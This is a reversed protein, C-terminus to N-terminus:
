PRDRAGRTAISERSRHARAPVRSHRSRQPAPSNPPQFTFASPLVLVPVLVIGALADSHRTVSRLVCKSTFRPNNLHSM